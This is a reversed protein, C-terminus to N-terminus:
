RPLEAELEELWALAEDEMLYNRVFRNEFPPMQWKRSHQFLMSGDPSHQLRIGPPVLKPRQAIVEMPKGLVAWALTFTDKDGYTCREYYFDARENMHRALSLAEWCQSKNVVLQGSELEAGTRPQLGLFEWAYPKIIWKEDGSPLFDPWFLNNCALYQPLEFLFDPNALAFNDADFFLVEEFTSHLISFIKNQWGGLNPFPHQERVKFSDICEVGYKALIPVFPPPLEEAGLYWLQIPLECGFHRLSRIGVYVSPLYRGGASTVIGRGEFRPLPPVNNM